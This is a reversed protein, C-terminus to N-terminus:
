RPRDVSCPTPDWGAGNREYKFHNTTTYPRTLNQPDTIISTVILWRDGNPETFAYFHEELETDESYPAGNKRLLGALLNSTRVTLYREEGTGEWSAISRGQWSPEPDAGAATSDFHLLRTQTGSDIDLQLTMDDIWRFRLRSPVRMIVPAGYSACANGAAADAQPDWAAARARGAQNLPLMSFQGEPPVTMRLHWQETVVSVWYGDLDQSESAGARGTPRSEPARPVPQAQAHDPAAVIGTLMVAITVGLTTLASNRLRDTM